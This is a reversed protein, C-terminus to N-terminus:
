ENMLENMAKEGLFPLVKVAFRVNKLREVKGGDKKQESSKEQKGNSGSPLKKESLSGGLEKKEEERLDMKINEEWRRRQRGLPVKGELRGVLVRYAKRSEGTRAVHGAWRLRRSNTSPDMPGLQSIKNIVLKGEKLWQLVIKTGYCTLVAKDDFLLRCLRRSEKCQSIAFGREIHLIVGAM